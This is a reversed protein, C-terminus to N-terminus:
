RAYRIVSAKRLLVLNDDYSSRKQVLINQNEKQGPIVTSVGYKLNMIENATPMVDNVLVRVLKQAKGSSDEKSIEESAVLAAALTDEATKLVVLVSDDTTNKKFESVLTELKKRIIIFEKKLRQFNSITEEENLFGFIMNLKTAIIEQTLVQKRDIATQIVEGLPEYRGRDIRIELPCDLDSCTLSLFTGNQSFKIGGAKGCSPCKGKLNSLKQLKEKDTLRSMHTIQYRRRMLDRKYQGRLKFFEELAEDVTVM